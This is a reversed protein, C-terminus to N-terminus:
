PLRLYASAWNRVNPSRVGAEVARLYEAFILPHFRDFLDYAPVTFMADVDIYVRATQITVDGEVIAIPIIRIKLKWGFPRDILEGPKVLRHFRNFGVHGRFERPQALLLALSFM